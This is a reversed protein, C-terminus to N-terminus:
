LKPTKKDQVPNRSHGSVVYGLISGQRGVFLIDAHQGIHVGWLCEALVGVGVDLGLDLLGPHQEVSQQGQLGLDRGSPSLAPLILHTTTLHWLQTLAIDQWNLNCELLGYFKKKLNTTYKCSHYLQMCVHTKVMLFNFNSYM